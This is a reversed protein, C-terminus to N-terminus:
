DLTIKISICELSAPLYKYITQNGALLYWETVFLDDDCPINHFNCNFLLGTIGEPFEFNNMYIDNQIICTDDEPINNINVEIYKLNKPYPGCIKESGHFGRIIISVFNDFWQSTIIKDLNVSEEFSIPCKLMERFTILLHFKDSNSELLSLILNRTEIPLLNM